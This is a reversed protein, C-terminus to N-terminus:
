MWIQIIHKKNYTGDRNFGEAWTIEPWSLSTTKFWKKRLVSPNLIELIWMHEIHKQLGVHRHEFTSRFSSTGPSATHQSSGSLQLPLLQGKKHVFPLVHCYQHRAVGLEVLCFAPSQTPTQPWPTCISKACLFGDTHEGASRALANLKAIGSWLRRQWSRNPRCSLTRKGAATM